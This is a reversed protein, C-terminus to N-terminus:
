SKEWESPIQPELIRGLDRITMDIMGKAQQRLSECGRIKRRFSNAEHRRKDLLSSRHKLPIVFIIQQMRYENVAPKLGGNQLMRQVAEEESIIGEARFRSGVLHGWGIQVRIYSKFHEPTVREQDLMQALQTETMHNHAAFESFAGNVMADNVTINHRNLEIRRLMEEILEKRALKDLHGDDRGQLRLFAMRRNIDYNTIANGNVIVAVQVVAQALATNLNSIISVVSTPLLLLCTFLYSRIKKM